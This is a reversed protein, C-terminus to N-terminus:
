ENESGGVLNIFYSELSEDKETMSIVNCGCSNLGIILSSVDPADYIEAESDSVIRYEVCIKDLYRVLAKTDNVKILTCKRSKLEFEAASIETVLKGKDIFGYHTALRSLEDLYHSSVLVTIGMERNMRIILERMDVIGQPDLGNVPEDLIVFDPNGALAIAIGLRQKMGLSFNKAKKNGTNELGVLKLLAAIETDDSKGLLRLQQKLNDSATMDLYLSPTEVVAGMRHHVKSISPSTSSKGYLTYDGKDPEQLGCILRIVTTKGAGNKGVLGYVSGKPIHMSFNDLAKFKKYQKTVSNVTLVYDM